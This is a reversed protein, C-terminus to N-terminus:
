GTYSTYFNHNTLTLSFLNFKRPYYFSKSLNEFLFIVTVFDEVPKEIEVREFFVNGKSIRWLMTEFAAVRERKIVGTVFTLQNVVSFSQLTETAADFGFIEDRKKFFDEAKELVYKLEVLELSCARLSDANQTLKKIEEESKTIHV